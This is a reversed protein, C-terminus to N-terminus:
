CMQYEPLSVLQLLVKKLTETNLETLKSRKQNNLDPLLMFGILQDSSIAKPFTNIVKEWNAETQFKEKVKEKQSMRINMMKFDDPDDPKIDLEIVGGNIILSPFKLRLMLTSSDIWNRGGAWGAVNPPYFLTQGLGRQMLLLTKPDKYTIGFTRSLGVIFEVPSKIKVGINEEDYFWPSTFIKKLLKGTDYNNNYYFDALENVRNEPPTENVYFKYLKSCLYLATQKNQLISNIIDDGTFNGTKGFFTKDGNDHQNENFCFSYSDKDFMWGTFSRASEKIDKETYNGRGLTFLEMLERAFNENPHAKRNQQNNLFQLMAPSQSVAVLLDRFPGLAYKRQISNLEQIFFINQLRCAFHGHWFLTIKDLLPNQEEIMQQMWKTNLSEGYARIQKQMEKKEEGNLQAGKPKNKADEASIVNLNKVETTNFLNDVLQSISKSSYNTITTYDIGFGARWYLHSIHKRSTLEM